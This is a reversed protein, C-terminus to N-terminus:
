VQTWTRQGAAQLVPTRNRWRGHVGWRSDQLNYLFTVRWRVYKTRTATGVAGHASDEVPFFKLIGNRGGSLAVYNIDHGAAKSFSGSQGFGSLRAYVLKPNVKLLTEPGLQLKEMVGCRFPELLVDVRACIRRLVTAGRPQKLDLVLSRKGRGLLSVDGGSGPRDVRVVQAGFDALVMGCFPGPALGALEVVRIGRLAM